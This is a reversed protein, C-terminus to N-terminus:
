SKKDTQSNIYETPTMGVKNKFYKNFSSKSNFGCDYALSMLKLKKNKPDNILKIFKEIRLNNIFMYFNTNTRENIIQSLYNPHVNVRDALDVLTIESITYLEEVQMLEMLKIYIRAAKENSLGSKAYKPKEESVTEQESVRVPNTHVQLLKPNTFIGVQKIGFFGIFNIFVVLAIYLYTEDLLFAILYVSGLGYILYRLWILNTKETYSFLENINRSHRRLLFLSWVFYIISIVIIAIFHITLSKEFGQGQNRYVDIKKDASLLFFPLFLIYSLATPIFHMLILLKRKPIQNTLAMVYLLLFVGHLLPFSLEIGLLFSFSYITESYRLYFLLLHVGLFLLWTALIKDSLSKDKKSLLLFELFFTITTGILFLM